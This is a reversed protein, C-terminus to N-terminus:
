QIHSCKKIIGNTIYSYKRFCKKVLFFSLLYGLLPLFICYYILLASGLDPPSCFAPAAATFRAGFIYVVLSISISLVLLLYRPAGYVRVLSCVGRPVRTALWFVKRM